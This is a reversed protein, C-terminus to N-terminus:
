KLTYIRSNDMFDMLKFRRYDHRGIEEREVWIIYQLFVRYRVYYVLFFYMCMYIIYIYISM